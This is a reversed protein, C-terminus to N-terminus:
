RALVPLPRGSPLVPEPPYDRDGWGDFGGFTVGITRLKDLDVPLPVFTIRDPLPPLTELREKPSPPTDTLGIDDSAEKGETRPEEMKEIKKMNFINKESLIVAEGKRLYDLALNAKKRNFMFHLLFKNEDMGVMGYASMLKAFDSPNKLLFTFRLLASGNVEVIKGSRIESARDVPGLPYDTWIKWNQAAMLVDVFNGPFPADTIVDIRGEVDSLNVTRRLLVRHDWRESIKQFDENPESGDYWGTAGEFPKFGVGLVIEHPPLSHPEGSFAETM